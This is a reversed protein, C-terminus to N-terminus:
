RNMLCSMRYSMEISKKANNLTPAGHGPYIKEVDLKLLKGISDSMVESISNEFDSRGIGGESFITDGTFLIKENKEYLCMCGKTHGPTHIVKLYNGKGDKDAGVYIEDNESYLIDANIKLPARGFANAASLEPDNLYEEEDKFIGVKASCYKLIEPVSGTHDYHAHTLIILDINKIDTYRKLSSIIKEHSMGADILVKENILYVNSDYPTPSIIKIDM